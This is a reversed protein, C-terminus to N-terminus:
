RAAGGLVADLANSLQPGPAGTCLGQLSLALGCLAPNTPLPAPLTTSGGATPVQALVLASPLAVLVEGFSFVPGTAAGPSVLWVADGAGHASCDLATRWVGGLVPPSVATLTLPNIGSGNRATTRALAASTVTVNDVGVDWGVILAFKAPDLWWFEVRDVNTIVDSWTVGPRFSTPSGAWGGTWGPPVAATSASPVPFDYHVWGEGPQPVQPGLFYAYDDDSPDGTDKSDRLLLSFEFGVPPGFAKADTRADVSIHTVGAARLDGIFASPIGPDNTLIPAFSQIGSNRLWWGPMGGSSELRDPVTVNFSWGANNTGGEFDDVVSSPACQAVLPAAGIPLLVLGAVVRSLCSM